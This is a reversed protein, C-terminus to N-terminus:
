EVGSRGCVSVGRQGALRRWTRRLTSGAVAAIVTRSPSWRLPRRWRTAGRPTPEMWADLMWPSNGTYTHTGM